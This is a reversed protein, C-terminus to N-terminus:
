IITGRKTSLCSTRGKWQPGQGINEDHHLEKPAFVSGRSMELMVIPRCRGIAQADALHERPKVDPRRAWASWRIMKDKAAHGDGTFINKVTQNHVEAMRVDCDTLRYLAEEYAALMRMQAMLTTVGRQQNNLVPLEILVDLRDIAHHGIWYQLTERMWEAMAHVREVM